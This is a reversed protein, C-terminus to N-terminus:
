YVTARVMALCLGATYNCMENFGISDLLFGGVSPGLFDRSYLFYGLNYCRFIVLIIFTQYICIHGNGNDTNLCKEGLHAM